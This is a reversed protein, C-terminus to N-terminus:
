EPAGLGFFHIPWEEALDIELLEAVEEDYFAGVACGGLGHAASALYLRAGVIGAELLANRYGRAGESVLARRDITLVVVAPADGVANQDLAARGARAGVDGTTTRVLADLAAEYRLVGPEIGNVRSAVVHARVARSVAAPAGLASALVGSVDELGLPGPQFTRISRRRAILELPRTSPAIRRPLAVRESADDYRPGIWSLSTAVHALSTAGLELDDVNPISRPAFLGSTPAGQPAGGRRLALLAVVAETQNDVGVTEAVVADDFAPVIESAMGVEAAAVITNGVAHGADAVAYRYARDRYKQGTRRLVSTVVIVVQPAESGSGSFGMRADARVPLGLDALEHREPSYAYVAPALDEVDYALVYIETPFLAGSSASARLDYGGRRDTIGSTAWLITALDRRGFRHERARPSGALAEATSRASAGSPDPPDLAVRPRDGRDIYRAVPLDWAVSPARLLVGKRTHSSMGQYQELAALSADGSGSFSSPLRPSGARLGLFFAGGAIGLALTAQALAIKRLPQSAARPGKRFHAVVTKANLALHAIVLVLTAYGFLYHFDFPPLQQNAVWFIGLGATALFYVVLLLALEVNLAHRSPRRRLAARVVYAVGYLALPAAVLLLKDM